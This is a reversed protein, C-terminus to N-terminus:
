DFLGLGEPEAPGGTPPFLDWQLVHDWIMKLSNEFYFENIECATLDFGLDHCALAHTGSGLHTDLIHWGPRAYKSLVWRYLAAPKQTPHFRYKDQPAYEFVKANGPIDTWAYEAMAMSFNESITMKLWVIFNRSPPLDFYNGGWIIRRRAVRGLERFYEPPPAVDWGNIDAGYKSAWTGGPRCAGGRSTTNPSIGAPPTCRKKSNEPELNRYKDFRGGFRMPPLVNHANHTEHHGGGYPPDVIALDFYGDPYRAMLDMCNENTLYIM